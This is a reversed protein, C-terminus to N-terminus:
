CWSAMAAGHAVSGNYKQDSWRGYFPVSVARIVARM